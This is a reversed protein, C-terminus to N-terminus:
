HVYDFNIMSESKVVVCWMAFFFVLM